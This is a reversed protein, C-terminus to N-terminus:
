LKKRWNFMLVYSLVIPWFLAVLIVDGWRSLGSLNKDGETFFAGIVGTAVLGGLYFSLM